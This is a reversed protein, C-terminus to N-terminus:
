RRYNSDVDLRPVGSLPLLRLFLPSVVAKLSVAAFPVLAFPATCPLEILSVDPYCGELM